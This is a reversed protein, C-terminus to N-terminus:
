IDCDQDTECIEREVEFDPYWMSGKDNNKPIEGGVEWNTGDIRFGDTNIISGIRSATGQTIAWTRM